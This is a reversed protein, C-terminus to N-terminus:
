HILLPPTQQLLLVHHFRNHHFFAKSIEREGRNKWALDLHREKKM